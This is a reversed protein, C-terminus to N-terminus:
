QSTIEKTTMLRVVGNDSLNQNWESVLEAAKRHYNSHGDAALIVQYGKEHADLCTARVCGHTVLGTIILTQIGRKQLEDGLSTDELASGHHKQIILDNEAQHLAPHFQWEDSGEVLMNKTSHQVLCVLIDNARAYDLLNNINELLQSAQYIPTSKNFLGKQIDIVLLAQNM